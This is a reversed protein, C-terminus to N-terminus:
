RTMFNTIIDTLKEFPPQLLPAANFRGQKYIGRPHTLAMFGEKGHYAGIGSEGVGGFPLDEQAYHLM